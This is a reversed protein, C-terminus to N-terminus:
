NGGERCMRIDQDITQGTDNMLYIREKQELAYTARNGDSYECILVNSLEDDEKICASKCDDWRVFKGNDNEVKVIM